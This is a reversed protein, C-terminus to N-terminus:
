RIERRQEHLDLLPERLSRRDVLFSGSFRRYIPDSLQLHWHCLVRRTASDMARWRQLTALAEPFPDFRQTLNALLFRVRELSKSGFWRREFAVLARDAAPITADLHQWYDRAEEVGLALRLIRTHIEKAEAHRLAAKESREAPVSM